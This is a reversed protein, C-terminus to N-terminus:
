HNYWYVLFVIIEALFFTTIYIANTFMLFVGVVTMALFFTLPDMGLVSKASAQHGGAAPAGYAPAPAPYGGGAPAGYGGAPGGSIPTVNGTRPDVQVAFGCQQCFVTNTQADVQLNPHGCQPCSVNM